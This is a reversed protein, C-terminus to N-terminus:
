RIRERWMRIVERWSYIFAVVLYLVVLSGIIISSFKAATIILDCLRECRM